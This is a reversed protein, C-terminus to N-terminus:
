HEQLEKMEDKLRTVPMEPVNELLAQLRCLCEELGNIAVSPVNALARRAVASSFPLADLLGVPTPGILLFLTSANFPRYSLYQTALDAWDVLAPM